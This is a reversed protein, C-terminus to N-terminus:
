FVFGIRVGTIVSPEISFSNGASEFTNTTTNGGVTTSTTTKGDKQYLFGFGGEVGLFVKKTFYYDAGAVARLGIGLTSPGKIEGSVNNVFTPNGFNNNSNSYSDKQNGYGFLVDGGVYTSLRETGTFHKELGVNLLFSTESRKVNGTEGNAGYANATEKNSSLNFGLRVATKEETFYRFRLLSGTENLNFGSNLVGGTLGFETTVDGKTPKFESQANAALGAIALGFVLLIKKM